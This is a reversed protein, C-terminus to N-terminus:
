AMNGNICFSTTSLLCQSVSFSKTSINANTCDAGPTIATFVETKTPYLILPMVPAINAANPQMNGEKIIIRQTYDRYRGRSDKDTM